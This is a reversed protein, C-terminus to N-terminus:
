LAAFYRMIYLYIFVMPASIFLGDFRDLVGGHGPLLNGSDKTDISRKFMSEVLDGMTGTSVIIFSVVLWHQLALVPFVMSLVYAIGLSTAMGGIFGEWSKKPSIREFLRRKGLWIGFLYAGTDSAWLLFLFGLPIQWQYTNHVLFGLATFLSFPVALYVIGLLTFAINDFPQTGRRYLEGIFVAFVLVIDLLLFIPDVLGLNFLNVSAFFLTGIFLGSLTQPFKGNNELLTYFENLCLATIIFFAGIFLYQNIIVAAILATGFFLATIVRTWFNNM